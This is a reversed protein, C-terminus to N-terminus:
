LTLVWVYCTSVPRISDNFGCFVCNRSSQAFIVLGLSIWFGFPAHCVSCHLLSLQSCGLHLFFRSLLLFLQLSVVSLRLMLSVVFSQLSTLARFLSPPLYWVMGNSFSPSTSLSFLATPAKPSAKLSTHLVGTGGFFLFSTLLSALCSFLPVGFVM